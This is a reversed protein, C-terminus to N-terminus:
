SAGSFGVYLVYPANKYAKYPVGNPGPPSTTRAQHVIKEVEKWTPPGIEFQYVPPDIPPIDPPIALTEFRKSDYHTSRLYEELDDKTTKLVGIKEKIFLTKLFKFPDKYFRTRTDEKNRRRKRLIEARCLSALRARIDAQLTSIGEKEM